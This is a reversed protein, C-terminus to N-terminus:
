KAGGFLHKKLGRIWQYNKRAKPLDFEKSLQVTDFWPVVEMNSNPVKKLIM